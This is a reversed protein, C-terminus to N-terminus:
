PKRFRGNLAMAVFAVGLVLQPAAVFALIPRLSTVEFSNAVAAYVAGAMMQIFFFLGTPVGPVPLPLSLQGNQSYPIVAGVGMFQTCLLAIVVWAPLPPALMGVAFVVLAVAGFVVISLHALKTPRATHKILFSGFWYGVAPWLMVVGYTIGAIGYTTEFFGPSLALFGFYSMWVLALAASYWLYSPNMLSAKISALTQGLSPLAPIEAKASGLFALCLVSFALGLLALVVFIVRWPFFLSAVGGILPAVAPTLSIVMTLNALPAIRFQPDIRRRIILRCLVTASTGGLAQLFRGVSLLAISPSFACVVSGASFMVLGFAQLKVVDYKEALFGGAFMSLAYGAMYITTTWQLSAVAVGLDSAMTAFSPTIVSLGLQPAMVTLLLTGM